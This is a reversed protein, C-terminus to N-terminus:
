QTDFVTRGWDVWRAPAPAARQEFAPDTYADDLYAAACRQGVIETFLVRRTEPPYFQKAHKWKGYEGEVSFDVSFRIHGFYDHVARGKINQEVTMHDAHSGGAFVLFEDDEEVRRMMEDADTYPDNHTWLVPVDIQEYLIEHRQALEEYADITDATDEGHLRPLEIYEKGIRQALEDSATPAARGDADGDRDNDHRPTSAM